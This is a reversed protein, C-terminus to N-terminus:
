SPKAGSGVLLEFETEFGGSAEVEFQKLCEYVENWAKSKEADSLDAVVARYAGAAEQMLKLADSASPLVLRARVVETKIDELGSDKMLRELVGEGGLAFIGPQGPAPPSKGARRLLIAMPQAMFPNSAPTTFVLASFRAGLKLARQLAELAKRPSPFLMLGLRCISADFCAEAELDEAACELTEINGLDARAANRRVYELMTPSIDSAVVRGNPGVRKAAQISQSGAGCALDLVRMGSRICAMDILADTASSLSTDFVHEWKAWGPAASEWTNRLESKLTSDAM